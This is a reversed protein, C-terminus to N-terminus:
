TTKGKNPKPTILAFFILILHFIRPGIQTTDVSLGRKQFANACTHLYKNLYSYSMAAPPTEMTWHGVESPPTQPDTQKINNHKNGGHHRLLVICRSGVSLSFESNKLNKEATLKQDVIM